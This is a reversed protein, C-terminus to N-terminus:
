KSDFAVMLRDPFPGEHLIEGAPGEARRLDRLRLLPALVAPVVVLNLREGFCTHQGAGFHLYAGPPRDTRFEEPAAIVDEDFMASLTAAVVTTGKPIKTARASGEALVFDQHCTRLVFPNHTKWRLIEFVVAGLRKDDDARAAAVAQAMGDPQRFLEDLAYTTAKSLTDVAGVIIGGVNRRVGDDDLRTDPDAQMRLLNTLLDDRPSTGLTAKGQAILQELHPRLLASAALARRTIDPDGQLNVFLEWFISRMWGKFQEEDPSAVGFIENVIRIPIRRSLQGVTDMRGAPRAEEVLATALARALTRTREVVGAPLAKRCLGVERQYQPTNEMGLFFAGSTAQMKAAYTETVGFIDPRDLVERVDKHWTVVARGEVVLTPKYERLLSFLERLTPPSTLWDVLDAEAVAAVLGWRARLRRFWRCVRSWLRGLWTM